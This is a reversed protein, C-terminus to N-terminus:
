PMFRVFIQNSLLRARPTMRITDGDRRLLDYRTLWDLEDGYIEDIPTGFRQQFAEASIGEEVLRLGTM